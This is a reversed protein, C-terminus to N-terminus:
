KTAALDLYLVEVYETGREIRSRIDGVPDIPPNPSQPLITNAIFSYTFGKPKSKRKFQEADYARLLEIFPAKPKPNKPTSKTVKLRKALLAMLVIKADDIQARLSKKTVGMADLDFRLLAQGHRLRSPLLVSEYQTADLYAWSAVSKSSFKPRTKGTGFDETYDKFKILGVAHATTKKWGRTLTVDPKDRIRDCRAQFGKNRRLFEWAWAASTWTAYGPYDAISMGDPFKFATGVPKAPAKRKPKPAAAAQQPNATSTAMRNIESVDYTELPESLGGGRFPMLHPTLTFDM